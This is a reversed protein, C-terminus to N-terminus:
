QYVAYRLLGDPSYYAVLFRGDDLRAATKFFLDLYTDLVVPATFTPIATVTGAAGDLLSLEIRTDERFFMAAGDGDAALSAFPRSSIATGAPVELPEGMTPVGAAYRIPYYVPVTLNNNRAVLLADGNAAIDCGGVDFANGAGSSALATFGTASDRYTHRVRPFTGFMNTVSESFAFVIDGDANAAACFHTPSTAMTTALDPLFEAADHALRYGKVAYLTGVDTTRDRFFVTANGAADLVARVEFGLPLDLDQSEDAVPMPAAWTATTADFFRAVVVDEVPDGHVLLARGDDDSALALNSAVNALEVPAGWVAGDYHNAWIGGNQRWAAVLKAGGVHVIRLAYDDLNNAPEVDGAVGTNVVGLDDWAGTTAGHWAVARLVQSALATEYIVVARGDPRLSSSARNTMPVPVVNTPDSWGTVPTSADSADPAADSADPAADSADDMAADDMAADDTAADMVTVDALDGDRAADAIDKAGACDCATVLSLLALTAFSRNSM